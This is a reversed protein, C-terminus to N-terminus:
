LGKILNEEKKVERAAGVLKAMDIRGEGNLGITYDAYLKDLIHGINIPKSPDTTMVENNLGFQLLSLFAENSVRSFQRKKSYEDGMFMNKAAFQMDTLDTADDMSETLTKPKDAAETPIEVSRAHNFQSMKMYEDGPTVLPKDIDPNIENEEENPDKIM